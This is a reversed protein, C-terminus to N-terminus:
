TTASSTSQYEDLVEKLNPPSYNPGKVVKGMENYVPLGDVDLKTRNSRAVEDLGPQLPLGFTHFSGSTVWLIDLLADYVETLDGAALADELEQVEEKILALRLAQDQPTGLTPTTRVPQGYTIHFEEVLEHLNTM